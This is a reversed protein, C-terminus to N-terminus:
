HKYILMALIKSSILHAVKFYVKILKLKKKYNSITNITMIIFNFTNKIIM